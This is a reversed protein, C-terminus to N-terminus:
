APEQTARGAPTAQARTVLDANAAETAAAMWDQPWRLDLSHDTHEGNRCRTFDDWGRLRERARALREHWILPEDGRAQDHYATHWGAALATLEELLPGHRYWCAPIEEAIEYRDVLWDVWDILWAWVQAAADRDLDRWRLPWPMDASAKRPGGSTAARAAVADRLEVHQQHLADVADTLQQLSAGLEAIAVMDPSADPPLKFDFTSM